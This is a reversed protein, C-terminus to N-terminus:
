ANLTVIKINMFVQHVSNHQKSPVFSGMSIAVSCFSLDSTKVLVDM